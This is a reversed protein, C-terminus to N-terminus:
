LELKEPYGVRYDYGEVEEISQLGNVTALHRQTNDYCASAYVELAYLMQFAMALPLEYMQGSYWLSTMERGIAQESQFRLMLGARTSKDLWMPTSNMYFINVESSSDYQQIKNRLKHRARVFAAKNSVEPVPIETTTNLPSPEEEEVIPEVSPTVYEEWGDALIMEETPNYTSMGDKRIVIENRHKIKGDKIYRKM